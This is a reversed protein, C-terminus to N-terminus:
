GKADVTNGLSEMMRSLMNLVSEPPFQQVVEGTQESRLIIIVQNLNKDYEFSGKLNGHELLVPSESIPAKVPAAQPVAATNIAPAATDAVRPPTTNITNAIPYLVNVM